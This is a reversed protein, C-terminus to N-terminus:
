NEDSDPEEEQNDPEKYGPPALWIDIPDGVRVQENVEPFQKYVVPNTGTTDIGAPIEINGLHLNWGQLKFLATEYSDGILSGLRFDSRGYGDGVVLDITAGKPVRTGAKIPKGM